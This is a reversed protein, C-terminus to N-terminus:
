LARSRRIDRPNAIARPMCRRSALTWGRCATRARPGQGCGRALLGGVMSVSGAGASRTGADRRAARLAGEPLPAAHPAWPKRMSVTSPSGLFVRMRAGGGARAAYFTAASEARVRLVQVGHRRAASSVRSARHRGPRWGPRVFLATLETGRLAAYGVVLRGREAVAYREGGATMAWEHYLPPLSSWADVVAPDHFPAALKRIAGQMVASVASADAPRAQRM